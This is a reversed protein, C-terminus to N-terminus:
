ASAPPFKVSITTEGYQRSSFGLAELETTEANGHEAVLIADANLWGNRELNGILESWHKFGYPPDMFVIDFGEKRNPQGILKRSDTQVVCVQDDSIKFVGCQQRIVRCQDADRDTALVFSAGRSFAELGVVGSGTFLDLFRAGGLRGQLRSFLSERMMATTPRVTDRGRPSPVQRGRLKGGTIRIM